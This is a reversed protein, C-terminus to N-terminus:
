IQAAFVHLCTLESVMPASAVFYWIIFITFATWFVADFLDPIFGSFIAYQGLQQLSSSHAVPLGLMAFLAVIQVMEILESFCTLLTQWSLRLYKYRTGESYMTHDDDQLVESIGLARQTLTLFLVAVGFYIASSWAMTKSDGSSTINTGNVRKGPGFSEPGTHLALVFPAVTFALTLIAGWFLSTGREDIRDIQRNRQGSAKIYPAGSFRYFIEVPILFGHLLTMILFAYSSWKFVCSFTSVADNKVVPLYAFITKRAAYWSRQQFIDLRLDSCVEISRRGCLMVVCFALVALLDKGHDMLNKALIRNRHRWGKWLRPILLPLRYVLVLNFLFLIVAAFSGTAVITGLLRQNQSRTRQKFGLTDQWMPVNPPTFAMIQAEQNAVLSELHQLDQQVVRTNNEHCHTDPRLM